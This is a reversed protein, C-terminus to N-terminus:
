QMLHFAGASLALLESVTAADSVNNEPDSALVSVVYTEGTASAAMFSRTVVGPESGGKFWGTPWTETDLGLIRTGMLSLSTDVPEQGPQAAQAHLGAFARCLDAASAYWEITAISRPESWITDPVPLGAVVHDLYARRADEDLAAFADAHVPYDATKLQSMERTLLFPLNAAPDAMGFRAQQAEVAGRGLRHMLHDTASNDSYFIMHDAYERLTLRTGAPLEAVPGGGGAKWEDRVALPEDWEARGSHVAEALAGLVYLKFASAIPRPTAPALTHVPRCEGPEGPDDPEDIEAALFSVDPAVAAARRTLEAWSHPLPTLFLSAIAGDADTVVVAHHTGTGGTLLAYAESGARPERQARYSGLSLGNTGGAEALMDNLGDPGLSELLPDSLHARMESEALPLRHSAALLWSLQRAVPTDPLQPAREADRATAAPPLLTVLAILLVVLRRM